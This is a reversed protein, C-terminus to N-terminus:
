KEFDIGLEDEFHAENGHREGVQIRRCLDAKKRSEPLGSPLNKTLSVGRELSM